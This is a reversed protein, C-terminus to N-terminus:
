FTNEIFVDDDNVVSLHV